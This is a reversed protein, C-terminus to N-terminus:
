DIILEDDKTVILRVMQSQTELLDNVSEAHDIFIPAYVGESRCVANIIDLGANIRAASNLDSFPVGGVTAECTEVEGGNVQREFMKFRVISFMGNIRDEVAEVKAKSFQAITFEIGELTALEQSLEQLMGELEAIRADNQAIVDRIALRAKLETINDALVRKGDLLEQNDGAGPTVSLRNRVDTERNCLEVYERDQEVVSETEPRRMQLGLVENKSLEAAEADMSAAEAELADLRAQYAEIDAKLKLGAEKNKALREAKGRRFRESIEQQKAEIEAVDYRRGCTPCTFADDTLLLKEDNIRHWEALLSQRAERKAAMVGSTAEAEHRLEAARRKRDAIAAEVGMREQQLRNYESLLGSVIVGRRAEKKEIVAELERYLAKRAENRAEAAASADALQRDIGDLEKAKAKLEKELADWDEPQKADRRREDIRAPIGDVEQKIRRKKAAIERKYEDLTKGTLCSLLKEFDANGRAVDADAVDGAMRFLMARQVDTRQATFYSPSTIFKFVTEDCIAAIKDAFERVSCPVGNYFRKEEHGTFEKVASGRKTTWKEYYGRKLEVTEGDVDLVCTVEHPIEPVPRNDRDLTKINFDKRDRSDKGFLVYMFADFVTTKGSGNRGLINTVGENFDITKREVGKFNLLDLTRITIRKEM